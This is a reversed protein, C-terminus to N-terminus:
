VDISSWFTTLTKSVVKIKRNLLQNKIRYISLAIISPIRAIIYLILIVLIILYNGNEKGFLILRRVMKEVMFNTKSIYASYM